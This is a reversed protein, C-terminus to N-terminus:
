GFLKTLAAGAAVLAAGATMAAIIPQWPAIKTDIRLKGIEAHAKDIEALHKRISVIQAEIDLQDSSLRTAM